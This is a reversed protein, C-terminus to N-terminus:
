KMAQIIQLAKKYTADEANEVQYYGETRWIQRAILAKVQELSKAKLRENNPPLNISDERAYNILNSWTTEPLHYGNEFAAPTKYVQIAAKNQKYLQYTFSSITGSNFLRSANGSLTDAEFPVYVEPSIGGGGYMKRGAPTTYVKGVAYASDVGTTDTHHFRGIIESNYAKRGSAYSRQISRGLPTFYRAVTLRLAGGDSLQYQEQVLGKGFSRRGIITARDNDQLAGALVESASASLEDILVVLPGKEFVGPKTSKYDQRKIKDGETYTIMLGDELFEDAIYIAGDLVGGGNDRLDLILKKMGKAKLGDMAKMFEQYTTIAFKNLRIYGVGPAAMYAADLSPIPVIGRKIAIDFTKGNRLMNLRVTAGGTQMLQHIRDPPLNKGAVATDNIKLIQDGTQLGAKAAPDGDTVYIINATDNFVQYNIGIGQLSGRIQNDIDAVQVPPIYLSHPDLKDLVAAVAAQNLSDMNEKDVYKEKILELVEDSTGGIGSSTSRGGMNKQLRYGIIMGWVMVLAFLLPLWVQFRKNVTHKARKLILSRLYRIPLLVPAPPFTFAPCNM